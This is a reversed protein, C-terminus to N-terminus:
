FDALQHPPMGTLWEWGSKEAGSPERKPTRTPAGDLDNYEDEEDDDKDRKKRRDGHSGFKGALGDVKDHVYEVSQSAKEAMKKIGNTMEMLCMMLVALIGVLVYGYVVIQRLFPQIMGWHWLAAAGIGWLAFFLACRVVVEVSCSCCCCCFRFVKGMRGFCVALDQICPPAGKWAQKSAKSAKPSFGADPSPAGSVTLGSGASVARSDGISSALSGTRSSLKAKKRRGCCGRLCCGCMGLIAISLGVAFTMNMTDQRRRSGLTTDARQGLLSDFFKRHPKGGVSHLLQQTRAQKSSIHALTKKVETASERLAVLEQQLRLDATRKALRQLDLLVSDQDAVPSAPSPLASNPSREAAVPQGAFADRLLGAEEGTGRSRWDALPREIASAAGRALGITPQLGVGVGDDAAVAPPLAFDDLERAGGSLFGPESAGSTAAERAPWAPLQAGVPAASAQPLSSRSLGASSQTWLPPSASSDGIELSRAASRSALDGPVPPLQAPVYLQEPVRAAHAVEATPRSSQQTTQLVATPEDDEPFQLELQGATSRCHQPSPPNKPLRAAACGAHAERAMSTPTAAGIAAVVFQAVVSRGLLRWSRPRTACAVPAPAHPRLM